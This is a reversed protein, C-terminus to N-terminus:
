TKIKGGIHNKLFIFFHYLWESIKAFCTDFYVLVFISCDNILFIFVVLCCDFSGLCSLNTLKCLEKLIFLFLSSLISLFVKIITSSTIEVQDVILSNDFIKFSDHAFFTM